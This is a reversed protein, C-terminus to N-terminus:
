ELLGEAEQRLRRLIRSKALLVVNVSVGLAAAVASAPKGELAHQEFAQWSQASFECSIARLLCAMVHRDHQEDWLQSLGSRSDELEALQKEVAADTAPEAKGQRSRWHGRLRNATIARLWSRFAGPQQNHQFTKLERVVVSLVDQTLDEADHVQVFHRRLWGHILPSYVDVLRQWAADHPETRLRELLSFSTQAM